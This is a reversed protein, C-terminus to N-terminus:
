GTRDGTSSFERCVERCVVCQMYLVVVFVCVRFLVITFASEMVIVAAGIASASSQGVLVAAYLM